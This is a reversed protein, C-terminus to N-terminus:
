KYIADLLAAHRKTIVQRKLKMAATTCDNDPTWPDDVLAVATPIEFAVLKCKKCAATLSGLVEKAAAPAACLAAWDADALGNAAAWARLPAQAPVILAVVNSKSSLAFCLANEVYASQKLANEM